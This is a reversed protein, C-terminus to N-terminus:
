SGGEGDKRGGGERRGRARRGRSARGLDKFDEEERREGNKEVACRGKRWEDREGEEGGTGEREEGRRGELSAAM